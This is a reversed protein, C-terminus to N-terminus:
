RLDELQDVYKALVDFNSKFKVDPTVKAAEELETILEKREKEPISDDARLASIEQKIAERPEIFKRNEPDYGTM